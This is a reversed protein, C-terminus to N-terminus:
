YYPDGGMQKPPLHLIVCVSNEGDEVRGLKELFFEEASNSLKEAKM